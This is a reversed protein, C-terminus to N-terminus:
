PDPSLPRILEWDEDTPANCNAGLLTNNHTHRSKLFRRRQLRPSRVNVDEFLQPGGPRLVRGKLPKMITENPHLGLTLDGAVIPHMVPM